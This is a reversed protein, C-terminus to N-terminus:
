TGNHSIEPLRIEMPGRLPLARAAAIADALSQDSRQSAEDFPVWEVEQSEGPPPTPRLRGGPVLLLYRVDLHLHGRGGDHVDVHLPRPVEDVHRASLGTEERVERLVAQELTEDPAVHGGPQLWLGLRRHLHLLIHDVGDTVIASGTVHTPDAHEDFPAPLEALLRTMQALSTEERRSRPKHRSLLSLLASTRSTTDM